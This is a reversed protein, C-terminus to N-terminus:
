GASLPRRRPDGGRASARRPTLPSKPTRLLRDFGDYPQLARVDFGILGARVLPLTALHRHAAKESPCELLLVATRERRTFWIERIISQKKLKWVAFAEARLVRRHRASDIAALPKELALIQM